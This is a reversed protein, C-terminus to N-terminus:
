KGSWRAITCYSLGTLKDKLCVKVDIPGESRIHMEIATNVTGRANSKVKGIALWPDTSRIKIRVTFTHRAPLNLGYIYLDSKIFGAALQVAGATTAPQGAAQVAQPAVAFTGLLIVTALILRVLTFRKVFPHNTNPFM